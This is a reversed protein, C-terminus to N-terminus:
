RAASAAPPSTAAQPDLTIVAKYADAVGAGYEDATSGQPRHASKTLVAKVADPALKPHRGLLLAVVGSVHAAAVSTGTTMEYSQGPAPVLVDVGPAAVAIYKGRNADAFLNDQADTATVAIVSADAAPYLPASKPGANGAAAILIAGAARAAKLAKELMPDSPGAFSLNIVRAKAAVARDVARALDYSTGTAAGASTQSFARIAIIRAEPAVGMIKSQAVIAGAMATGHSHPKADKDDLVNIEEAITGALEPHTADIKSDIVAVLVHEGRALRHAQALHLKAVTYQMPDVPLRPAAAADRAPTTDAPASEERMAAADPATPAPTATAPASAASATNANPETGVAPAANVASAPEPASPADAAPAAADQAPAAADQAPLSAPADAVAPQLKSPTESASQPAPMAGETVADKNADAAPADAKEQVRGAVESAMADQALAYLYNPQASIVRNDRELATIVTAVARGDTIRYRFVRANLLAIQGVGGNTRALKNERLFRNIQRQTLNDRLVCIVQDPVFRNEGRPPVGFAARRSSSPPQQRQAAQSRSARAPKEKEVHKIRERRPTRRRPVDDDDEVIVPRQPAVYPRDPVDDVYIRGPGRPGRPYDRGPYRRGPYNNGTSVGGCGRGRCSTAASNTGYPRNAYTGRGGQNMGRGSMGRGSYIGRGGGHMGGGRGGRGFGGGGFGGGGGGIGFGGISIGFQASAEHAGPLLLAIVAAAIAAARTLSRRPKARMGPQLSVTSGDDTASRM